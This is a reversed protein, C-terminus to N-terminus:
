WSIRRIDSDDLYFWRFDVTYHSKDFLDLIDKKTLYKSIRDNLKEYETEICVFTRGDLAAKNVIEVLEELIKTKETTGSDHVISAIERNDRADILLNNGILNSQKNNKKDTRFVGVTYGVICSLVAVIVYIMYM